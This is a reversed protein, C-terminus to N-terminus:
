TPRLAANRYELRLYAALSPLPDRLTTSSTLPPAHLGPALQRGDAGDRVVQPDVGDVPRPDM